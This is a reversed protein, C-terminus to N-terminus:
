GRVDDDVTIGQPRMLNGDRSLLPSVEDLSSTYVPVFNAGRQGGGGGGAGRELFPDGTDSGRRSRRSAGAFPWSM